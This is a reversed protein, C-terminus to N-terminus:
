SSLIRLYKAWPGVEDKYQKALVRSIQAIHSMDHAVWTSLLQKLTVQGFSPHIGTKNYDAETLNKSRLLSTNKNRLSKFEALLQHITKGESEKFQAFRDFSEFTKDPASSLILEMRPIWDTKEGQILHGVIDFPSWTEEGENNSIWEDSVGHLLAEIALPTREIIELVQNLNFQM